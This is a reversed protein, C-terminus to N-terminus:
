QCDGPSSPYAAGCKVEVSSRRERVVDQVLRHIRLGNNIDRSILSSQILKTRADFYAVRSKPYNPLDVYDTDRVLIEESIRDPDLFSLVQLLATAEKSLADLMWVSSVTQNYTSNQDLLQMEHLRKADEAYYILFDALSLHRRRIIGGM